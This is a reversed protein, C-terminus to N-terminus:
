KIKACTEDIGGKIPKADVKEYKQGSAFAAGHAEQGLNQAAANAEREKIQKQIDALLRDKGGVLLDNLVDDRGKPSNEYGNSKRLFKKFRKLTKEKDEKFDKYLENAVIRGFVYKYAHQGHEVKGCLNGKAMVELRRMLSKYNPDNKADKEIQNLSEKTVPCSLNYKTIIDNEQLMWALDCRFDNWYINLQNQYEKEDLIGNEYFYDIVLRECFLSEVESIYRLKEPVRRKARIPLLHAFEHVFTIVGSVDDTPSVEIALRKHSKGFGVRSVGKKEATPESINIENDVDCFREKITYYFDMDLDKYFMLACAQMQERTWDLKFSPMVEKKPLIQHIKRLLLMEQKIDHLYFDHTRRKECEFELKAAFQEDFIM